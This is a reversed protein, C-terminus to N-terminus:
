STRAANPTNKRFALERASPEAAAEEALVLDLLTWFPANPPSPPSARTSVCRSGGNKSTSGAIAGLKEGIQPLLYLGSHVLVL